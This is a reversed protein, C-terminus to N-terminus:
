VAPGDMPQELDHVVDDSAQRIASELRNAEIIPGVWMAVFAAITFPLADFRHSAAM